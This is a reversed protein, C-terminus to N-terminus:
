QGKRILAIEEESYLEPLREGRKVMKVDIRHHKWAVDRQLLWKASPKAKADWWHCRGFNDILMFDVVMFRRKGDETVGPLSLRVQDLFTRIEGGLVLTDIQNCLQAEWKSDFRAEGVTPSDYHTPINGYKTRASTRIGFSLGKIGLSAAEGKSLRIPM